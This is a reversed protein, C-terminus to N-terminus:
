DGSVWEGLSVPQEQVAPAVTRPTVFRPSPAAPAVPFSATSRSARLPRWHKAEDEAAPEAPPVFTPSVVAPAPAPAAPVAASAPTVRATLQPATSQPARWGAGNMLQARRANRIADAASLPEGAPAEGAGNQPANPTPADLDLGELIADVDLENPMVNELGPVLDSPSLPTERSGGPSREGAPPVPPQVSPESIPPAPNRPEKMPLPAPAPAPALVPGAGDRRARERAAAAEEPTPEPVPAPPPLPGPVFNTPTQQPLFAAGPPCGNTLFQPCAREDEAQTFPEPSTQLHHAPLAHSREWARRMAQQYAKPTWMGEALYVGNADLSTGKTLQLLAQAQNYAVIEEFYAGEAVALDSQARLLFDTRLNGADFADTLIRLREQAAGIQNYFNTATAHRLAVQQFADALQHSVDLEQAALVRRAKTLRYELNRVQLHAQRFGIPASLEVGLQWGTQEADALTGFASSEDEDAILDDGFGNVQYQSVLNLTPQTLSRAARLQLELSKVRFKQQRLEPRHCLAEALSSHWEPEFPATIPETAPRIVRGDNVPLAMVRRLEAEAAYIQNLSQTALSKQQFYQNEAQALQAPLPEENNGFGQEQLARYAVTQVGDASEAATLEDARLNRVDASNRLRRWTELASNRAALRTDYQRYANYLNWYSDEVGKVLDRVNREFDLLNIDENIRAIVVGQNVGTIASFNPNRPGAIRTYEVGSGALLPQTFRLGVNTTYNNPFLGFSPDSDLYNVNGFSSVTGGTALTKNLSSSYTASNTTTEGPLLAGTGFGGGAGAGAGTGGTGPLGGTGTGGGAGTVAGSTGGAGFNNGLTENRNFLLSSTFNADFDALAAEVGRNGFLVGTQAIAPDFLSPAGDPNSLTATQFGSGTVNGRPAVTRLIESRELAIKVAADLELDWIEAKSMDAITRPAAGNLLPRVDNEVGHAYSIKAGSEIHEAPRADGLYTLKPEAQTKGGFGACGPLAVLAAVCGAGAARRLRAARSGRRSLSPVNLPPRTM